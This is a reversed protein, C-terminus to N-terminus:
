QSANGAESGSQSANGRASGSQSANGAESGSQSSNGRESGSQVAHGAVSGSQVANGRPSPALTNTTDIRGLILFPAVRESALSSNCNLTFGDSDWSTWEVDVGGTGGGHVPVHAVKDDFITQTDEPAANRKMAMAWSAEAGDEGIAGYGIAGARTSTTQGPVDGIRVNMPAFLGGVPTFATGTINTESAGSAGDLTQFLGAHADVGSGAIAFWGFNLTALNTGQQLVTFAGDVMSSVFLSDTPLEGVVLAQNYIRATDVYASVDAAGSGGLWSITQCVQYITAAGDTTAFGLGLRCPVSPATDAFRHWFGVCGVGIAKTLGNLGTLVTKSANAPVATTSTGVAFGVDTGGIAMVWFKDGANNGVSSWLLSVQDAGLGVLLANGDDTGDPNLYAIIRDSRIRTKRIAGGDQSCAAMCWQAGPGSSCGWGASAHPEEAGESDVDGEAICFGIFVGLVQGFGNPLSVTQVGTGSPVSETVLATTITM